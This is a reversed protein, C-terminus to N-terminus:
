AGSDIIEKIFLSATLTNRILNTGLFVKDVFASKPDKGIGIPCGFQDEKPYPHADALNNKKAAEWFIGASWKKLRDKLSRM